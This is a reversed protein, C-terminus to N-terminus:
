TVGGSRALGLARRSVALRRPYSPQVSDEDPDYSSGLLLELQEGVPDLLAHRSALTLM